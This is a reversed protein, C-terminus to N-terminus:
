EMAVLTPRPRPEVNAGEAEQQAEGDKWCLLLLAVFVLPLAELFIAAAFALPQPYRLIAIKGDIVEYTPVRVARIEEVVRDVVASIKTLADNVSNQLQPVVLLGVGLDSARLTVNNAGNLAATIRNAADNFAPYDRAGAAKRADDRALNAARLFAERKDGERTLAGAITTFHTTVHIYSRYVPGQGLKGSKFGKTESEAITAFGQSATRVTKPIDAEIMANRAIAQQAKESDAIFRYHHEAIANTGGIKAATFWSSGGIAFLVLVGSVAVVIGMRHAEREHAALELIFHWAISLGVAIALGLIPACIAYLGGEAWADPWIGLTIFLATTVASVGAGWQMM